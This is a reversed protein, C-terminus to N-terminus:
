ENYKSLKLRPIINMSQLEQFLLKCAYPIRLSSVHCSSKCFHCRFGLDAANSSPSGPGSAARLLPLRSGPASAARLLPLRPGPASALLPLRSGPASATLLLPLRARCWGVGDSRPRANGPGRRESVSDFRYTHADFRSDSPPTRSGAVGHVTAQWAGRDMFNEPCSYQLPNGNGEGFIYTYVGPIFLLMWPLFLFFCVM